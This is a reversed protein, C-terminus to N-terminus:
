RNSASHLSLAVFDIQKQDKRAKKVLHSGDDDSIGYTHQINDYIHQGQLAHGDEVFLVFVVLVVIRIFVSTGRLYISTRILLGACPLM